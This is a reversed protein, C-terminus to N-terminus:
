IIEPQHVPINYTQKVQIKQVEKRQEKLYHCLQRVPDIENDKELLEQLSEIATTYRAEKENLDQISETNSM